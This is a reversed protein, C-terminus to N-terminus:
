IFFFGPTQYVNSPQLWSSVEAEKECRVLIATVFSWVPCLGSLFHSCFLLRFCCFKHIQYDYSKAFWLFSFSLGPLSPTAHFCNLLFGIHSWLVVSISLANSYSCKIHSSYQSYIGPVRGVGCIQFIAEELSCSSHLSARLVQVPSVWSKLIGLVASHLSM